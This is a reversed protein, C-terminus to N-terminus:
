YFDKVASGTPSRRYRVSLMWIYTELPLNDEPRAHRARKWRRAFPPIFMDQTKLRYQVAISRQLRNFQPDIWDLLVFRAYKLWNNVRAALIVDDYTGNDCVVRAFQWLMLVWISHQSAIHLSTTSWLILFPVVVGIDHLIWTFIM